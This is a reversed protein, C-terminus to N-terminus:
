SDFIEHAKRSPGRETSEKSNWWRRVRWKTHKGVRETLGVTLWAAAGFPLRAKDEPL